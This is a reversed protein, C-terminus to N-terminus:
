SKILLYFDHLDFFVNNQLLNGSTVQTHINEMCAHSHMCSYVHMQNLSNYSLGLHWVM